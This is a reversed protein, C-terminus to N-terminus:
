GPTLTDRAAAFRFSAPPLYTPKRVSVSYLAPHHPHHQVVFLFGISCLVDVRLYLPWMRLFRITKGQSDAKTLNDFFKYITGDIRSM